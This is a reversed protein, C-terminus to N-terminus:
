RLPAASRREHRIGRRGGRRRVGSALAISDPPRSDHRARIEAAREVVARELAILSFHPHGALQDRYARALDARGQRLPKVLLEALTIFSSVGRKEGRDISEMVPEVLEFFAADKEIFYILPATDFFISQAHALAEGMEEGHMIIM